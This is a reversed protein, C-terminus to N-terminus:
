YPLSGGGEGQLQDLPEFIFSATPERLQRNPKAPTLILNLPEACWISDSGHSHSCGPALDSSILGKIDQLRSQGRPFLYFYM